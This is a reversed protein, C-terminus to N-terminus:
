EAAQPAPAAEGPPKEKIHALKNLFPSAIGLGVGIGVAWWGITSFVSVYTDLALKPDLVQGGV